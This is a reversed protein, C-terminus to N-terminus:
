DDKLLWIAVANFVLFLVAGLVAMSVDPITLAGGKVMKEVAGYGFLGFVAYSVDKLLGALHEMVKEHKKAM